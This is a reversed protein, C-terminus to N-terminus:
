VESNLINKQFINKRHKLNRLEHLYKTLMSYYKTITHSELRKFHHFYKALHKKTVPSFIKERYNKITISESPRREGILKEPYRGDSHVRMDNEYAISEKYFKHRKEGKLWVKIDQAM